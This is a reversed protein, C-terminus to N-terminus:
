ELEKEIYEICVAVCEIFGSPGNLCAEKHKVESKLCEEKSDVCDQIMNTCETAKDGCGDRCDNEDLCTLKIECDACEHNCNNADNFCEELDSFCRDGVPCQQKADLCSKNLTNCERICGSTDPVDVFDGVACSSLLLLIFITAVAGSRLIKM